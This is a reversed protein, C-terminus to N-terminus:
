LRQPEREARRAIREAETFMALVMPGFFNGAWDSKIGAMVEAVKYELICGGKFLALVLYYDLHAISRGTGAAYYRALDQRTPFDGPDFTGHPPTRHPEREDRLANAFWAFDLMPDGITSLEWDILAKVRCPADHSFLANPTGVDGHMIGPPGAEPTNAALWDRVYDYGPLARGAYGYLSKYSALQSSWREVQRGLFNEPKGFGDLGVAKYDVRALAILADTLAFPVGYRWPAKDFPAPYVTDVDTLQAAWGDVREMVYFPAGIVSYDDCRAYLRPHPVDTANLAALVRAERQISGSSGPPPVASPRRLVAAPGGRDLGLIINSTGGSIVEVRLSGGGLQPVSADLWESLKGADELNEM